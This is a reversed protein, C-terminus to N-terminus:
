MFSSDISSNVFLWAEYNIPQFLLKARARRLNASFEGVLVRSYRSFKQALKLIQVRIAVCTLGRGAPSPYITGGRGFIWALKFVVNSVVGFKPYRIQCYNSMKESFKVLIPWFKKQFIFKKHRWTVVKPFISLLKDFRPVNMKLSSGLHFVDFSAGQWSQFDVQVSNPFKKTKVELFGFFRIKSSGIDIFDKKEEFCRFM